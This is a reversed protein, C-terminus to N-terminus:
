QDPAPFVMLKTLFGQFVIVYKNGREMVPLKMIDVGMIQFLKLAHCAHLVCLLSSKYSRLAFRVTTGKEFRWVRPFKFM